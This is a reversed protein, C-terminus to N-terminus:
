DLKGILDNLRSKLAKPARGKASDQIHNSLKREIEARSFCSGCHGLHREVSAIAIPDDLEGDLYAYLSEIAELCGIDDTDKKDNM